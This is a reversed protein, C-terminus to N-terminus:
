FKLTNPHINFISKKEGPGGVKSEEPKDAKPGKHKSSGHSYGWCNCHECWKATKGQAGIKELPEGEKPPELRWKAMRQRQNRPNTEKPDKADKVKDTEVLKAATEKQAAQNAQLQKQLNEVTGQFGKLQEKLAVIEGKERTLAKNGRTVRTFESDAKSLLQKLSISYGETGARDHGWDDYLQWFVRQFDTNDVEALQSFITIKTQMSPQARASALMRLNTRIHKSWKKVDNGVNDLMLDTAHLNKEALILADKSVSAYERHLFYIFAVGDGNAELRHAKMM